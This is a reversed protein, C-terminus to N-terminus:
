RGKQAQVHARCLWDRSHYLARSYRQCDVNAYFIDNVRRRRIGVRVTVIGGALSRGGVLARRKGCLTPATDSKDNDNWCHTSYLYHTPPYGFEHSQQCPSPECWTYLCGGVCSEDYYGDLLGGVLPVRPKSEVHDNDSTVESV